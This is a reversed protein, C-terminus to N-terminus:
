IYVENPGYKKVWKTGNQRNRTMGKPARAIIVGCRELAAKLPVEGKAPQSTGKGNLLCNELVVGRSTANREARDLEREISTLYNYDHDIGKETALEVRSM